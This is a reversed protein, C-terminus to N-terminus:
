PMGGDIRLVAGTCYSSADTAFYVVAAVVEEVEGVRGLATRAILAEPDLWHDAIDTRIPGPQVTNVRVSPAFAQAFGETLTHLGAKAASYPLGMPDPRIAASSGINVIAGGTSAAMRTGILATLRFPGRLNVDLVKDWLERSVEALSPYLPSLGANNVLVDMRDFRGYAAEVLRDCQDWDGVNTPCALTPVGHADALEEATRDCAEAKRSAVVISCGRRALEEAVARGIGRTAGTVLAVRGSLDRETATM